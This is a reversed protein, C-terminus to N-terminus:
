HHVYRAYLVRDMRMEVSELANWLRHVQLPNNAISPTTTTISFLPYVLSRTITDLITPIALHDSRSHDDDM